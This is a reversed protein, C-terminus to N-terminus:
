SREATKHGGGERAESSRDPEPLRDNRRKMTEIKERNEQDLSVHEELMIEANNHKKELSVMNRNTSNLDYNLQELDACQEARNKESLKLKATLRNIEDESEKMRNQWKRRLDEEEELTSKAFETSRTNSLNLDNLYLQAQRKLDEIIQNNKLGKDKEDEIERQLNQIRNNLSVRQQVLTDHDIELNDMKKKLTKNETTLTTVKQEHSQLDSKISAHDKTLSNFKLQLAHFDAETFTLNNATSLYEERSKKLLNDSSSLKQILENKEMELSQIEEFHTEREKELKDKMKKLQDKTQESENLCRDAKKRVSATSESQRDIKEEFESRLELLEEERKRLLQKQNKYADNNEENLKEYDVVESELDSVKRKLIDVDSRLMANHDTLEDNTELQGQVQKSKHNCREVVVNLSDSVSRFAMDKEYLLEKVGLLESTLADNKTIFTKISNEKAKILKELKEVRSRNSNANQVEVLAKEERERVDEEKKLEGQLSVVPKDEDLTVHADLKQLDM